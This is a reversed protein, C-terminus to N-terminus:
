TRMGGQVCMHYTVGTCMCAGRWVHTPLSTATCVCLSRVVGHLRREAQFTCSGFHFFSALGVPSWTLPHPPGLAGDM